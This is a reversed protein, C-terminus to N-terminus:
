NKRRWFIRRLGSLLAMVSVMAIAIGIAEAWALAGLTESAERQYTENEGVRKLVSHSGEALLLGAPIGAAALYDRAKAEDEPLESDVPKQIDSLESV